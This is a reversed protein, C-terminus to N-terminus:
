YVRIEKGSDMVAFKHMSGRSATRVGSCVPCDFYDSSNFPFHGAARREEKDDMDDFKWDNELKEEETLEFKSYCCSCRFRYM